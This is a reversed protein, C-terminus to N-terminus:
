KTAEAAYIRFRSPTRARRLRALLPRMQWRIGYYPEYTQWRIGFAKQLQALRQDTLFELSKLEDSPIGYRKIFLVRREELMQLGSQEDGYWPTDAILVTGYRRTCRLAECLTKEYDESYHFSANFVVLDFQGDAFPLKDLEAQFRPFMIPLRKKYHMAAGLGDQDNTMLDVAIPTHGQRSFRYSMWGNGAGLDLIRLKPNAISTIQPLIRTEIYRFTRARIKWQGRNRGSLDRYPLALYYDATVSGRGESARIFQYDEVFRSFHVEREPLLAKWVGQECPIKVTCRSCVLTADNDPLYGISNGCRPCRLRLRASGETKLNSLQVQQSLLM